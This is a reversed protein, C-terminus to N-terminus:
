HTFFSIVGTVILTIGTIIGANHEWKHWNLKLSGKYALRVWLLMGTLTIAAYLIAISAMVWWGKTGALLFYAEIEMCPSLLMATVLAMVIKHKPKGFLQQQKEVFHHQQYHQRVFYFGLLVLVAPAVVKTFQEMNENLEAGILSLLVGILITSLIHAVGSILTINLTESLSWGEKRSIALM